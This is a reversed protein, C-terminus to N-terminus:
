KKLAHLLMRLSTANRLVAYIPSKGSIPYIPWASGLVEYKHVICTSLLTEVLSTKGDAVCKRLADNEFEIQSWPGPISTIQSGNYLVRIPWDYDTTPRVMVVSIPVAGPPIRSHGAIMVSSIEDQRGGDTLIGSGKSASADEEGASSSDGHRVPLKINNAKLLSALEQVANQLGMVEARTVSDAGPGSVPINSDSVFVSKQPAAVRQQHHRGPKVAASKNNGQPFATTAEHVTTPQRQPEFREYQLTPGAASPAAVGGKEAAKNSADLDQIFQKFAEVGRRIVLRVSRGRDTEAHEVVLDGRQLIYALHPAVYELVGNKASFGWHTEPSPRSLNIQLEDCRITATIRRVSQPLALLVTGPDGSTDTDIIAQAESIQNGDADFASEIRELFTGDFRARRNLVFQAAEPAISYMSVIMMRGPDSSPLRQLLSFGWSKKNIKRISYMKRTSSSRLQIVHSGPRRTIPELVKCGIYGDGAATPQTQRRLLLKLTTATELVERVKPLQSLVGFGNVRSVLDGEAILGRLEATSASVVLQPFSDAQRLRLPWPVQPSPRSLIVEVHPSDVALVMRKISLDTKDGRYLFDRLSNSIVKSNEHLFLSTPDLSTANRSTARIVSGPLFTCARRLDNKLEQREGQPEMYQFLHVFLETPGEAKKPVSPDSVSTENTGTTPSSSSSIPQVTLKMESRPDCWLPLMAKVPVNTMVSEVEVEKQPLSPPPSDVIRILDESLTSAGSGGVRLTETGVTSTM